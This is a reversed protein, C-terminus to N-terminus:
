QERIFYLFFLILIVSTNKIKKYFILVILTLLSITVMLLPILFRLANISKQLGDFIQYMEGPKTNISLCLSMWTIIIFFYILNLKRPKISGTYEKLLNSISIRM